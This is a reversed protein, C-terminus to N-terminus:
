QVCLPKMVVLNGHLTTPHQALASKLASAQVERTTVSVICKAGIQKMLSVISPTGGCQLNTSVLSGVLNLYKVGIAAVEIPVKVM